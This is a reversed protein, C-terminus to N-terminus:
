SKKNQPTINRQTYKLTYSESQFFSADRMPFRAQRAGRHTRPVAPSSLSLFVADGARRRPRASPESRATASPITGTPFRLAPVDKGERGEPPAAPLAQGQATCAAAHSLSCSSCSRTLGCAAQTHTSTCRCRTLAQKRPGPAAGWGEETHKRQISCCVHCAPQHSRQLPLLALEPWPQPTLESSFHATEVCSRGRSTCRMVEEGARLDVRARHQMSSCCIAKGDATNLPTHGSISSSEHRCGFSYLHTPGERQVETETVGGDANGNGHHRKPSSM